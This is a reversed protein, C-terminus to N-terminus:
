SAQKGPSYGERGHTTPSTVDRERHAPKMADIVRHACADVCPRCRSSEMAPTSTPILFRDFDNPLEVMQDSTVSVSGAPSILTRSPGDPVPLDTRRFDIMPSSLGSFPEIKM